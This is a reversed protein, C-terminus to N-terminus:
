KLKVWKESKNISSIWFGIVFSLVPIFQVRIISAVFLFIILIRLLFTNDEKM